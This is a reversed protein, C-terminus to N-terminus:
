YTCIDTVSDVNAATIRKVPFLATKPTSEGRLVKLVHEAAQKAQTTPAQTAGGYITGDKIAKLGDPGCNSGSVIVGKAKVGVPMGASKAARAVSVAMLDSMGYAAQVGGKGRYKAFLQSAIQGSKVPDWQGDQVEVIKLGPTTALQKKFAALRQQVGLQSASGTIAIVNGSDKGIKKLGEQLNMAAYKGLNAQDDLFQGSSLDVARPSAPNIVIVVPIGAQKASQFPGAVASADQVGVAILDPHKSIAQNLKQQETASDFNNSLVSVKVGEAQLTESFTKNYAAIFPDAPLGDVLVVTKGMVSNPAGSASTSSSSANSANSSSDDDSGCGVVFTLCALAFALLLTGTLRSRFTM